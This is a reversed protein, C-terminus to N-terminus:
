VMSKAMKSARSLSLGAVILRQAISDYICFGKHPPPSPIIMIRSEKGSPWFLNRIGTEKNLKIKV